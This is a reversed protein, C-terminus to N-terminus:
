PFELERLREVRKGVETFIERYPLQNGDRGIMAGTELNFETVSVPWNGTRQQVAVAGLILGLSLPFGKGLGRDRLDKKERTRDFSLLHIGRGTDEWCFDILGRLVWREAPFLLNEGHPSELLFELFRHCQQSEALEQRLDSAAFRALRRELSKQVGPQIEDSFAEMLPKWGQPDRFDWRQFIDNLFREEKDEERNGARRIQEGPRPWDRRDSGDESDFQWAVEEPRLKTKSSSGRALFNEL